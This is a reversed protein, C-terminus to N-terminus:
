ASLRESGPIDSAHVLLQELSLPEVSLHLAQARAHEAADLPGPTTVSARSGLHRRHWVPRGSVFDEVATAPGNVTVAGGRVDDAPADLVVRGRDLMVVHELLDAVEDVLHTSLVVTRPHEAIEALLRDYFLQRAVADLGAYPEDFLTLEARSALGIVIGVASRMGRSLKKVPRRVPLAFDDLLTEALEADWNPFFWSAVEIAHRVRFDPYAQDERVFVMRRLVADNEAPAEGFVRITGSGPFELGTIIRMLTSKGAGNRGLLGTVTGPAINLSVDDLAVQERYRRGLQHAAVTPTM